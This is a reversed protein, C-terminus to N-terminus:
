YDSSVINLLWLYAVITETKIKSGFFPIRALEIVFEIDTSFKLIFANNVIIVLVM